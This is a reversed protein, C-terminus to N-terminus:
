QTQFSGVGDFGPDIGMGARWLARAGAMNRGATSTRSRYKPM